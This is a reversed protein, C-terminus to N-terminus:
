NSIYKAGILIGIKYAEALGDQYLWLGDKSDNKLQGTISIKGDIDFLRYKGDMKGDIYHIITRIKGNPYFTLWKGVKKGNNFEGEEAVFRDKNKYPFDTDYKINFIDIFAYYTFKGHEITLQEDKFYGTEVINNWLDYKKLIWFDNGNVKGTLGYFVANTSDTIFKNQSGFYISKVQADVKLFSFFCFLMLVYKM